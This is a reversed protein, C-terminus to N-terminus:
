HRKEPFKIQFCFGSSSVGRRVAVLVRPDLLASLPSSFVDNVDNVDYAKRQLPKPSSTKEGTVDDAGAFVDNGGSFTM